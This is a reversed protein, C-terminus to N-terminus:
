QVSAIRGSHPGAERPGRGGRHHRDWLPEGHLCRLRLVAGTRLNRIRQVAPPDDSVFYRIQIPDGERLEFGIREFANIPALRVRLPEASGDDIVAELWQEGSHADTFLTREVLGRVDRLALDGPTGARCPIPGPLWTLLFFAPLVAVARFVPHALLGHLVTPVLLLQRGRSLM